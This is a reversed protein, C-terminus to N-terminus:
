KVAQPSAGTFATFPDAPIEQPKQLSAETFIVSPIKLKAISRCAQDSANAALAPACVCIIALILALTCGRDRLKLGNALFM